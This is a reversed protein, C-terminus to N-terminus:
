NVNQPISSPCKPLANAQKRYFGNAGRESAVALTIKLQRYAELMPQRPLPFWSEPIAEM